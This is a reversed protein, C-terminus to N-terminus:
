TPTAKVRVYYTGASLGTIETGTCNKADTFSSNDAYEMDTSTGSIKGDTGGISSPAVATLGTPAAPGVAKAITATADSSVSDTQVSSTVVCTLTQGIDEQVIVYTNRTAGEINNEGRKWQYSLAGSNNGSAYVATLTKGYKTTGSITVTGTLSVAAWQATLGAVTNLVTEGAAYTTISSTDKWGAFAKDTPATLGEGSPAIFSDGACIIKINTTSGKLSGGNLNLTVAKLGDYGLTGPNLVELAPRFSANVSKPYGNCYHVSHDGRIAFFNSILRTDQGWSPIGKWNKIWGTANDASNSKKVIQDWENTLPLGKHDSGDSAFGAHGSGVSLSRLKYNTDFDKGFILGNTNLSNWSIGTSIAYDGVFLSRDSKNAYAYSETTAMESTLSYANVTGAYTFPVYHLSRDPLTTNVTGINNKESSLDFYYTDGPTLNFQETVAPAPEFKVYKYQNLNAMDYAVLSGEDYSTSAMAQTGGGIYLTEYYFARGMGKIIASGGSVNVFVTSAGIAYSKSSSIIGGCINVVAGTEAYITVLNPYAESSITGGNITATGGSSVFVTNAFQSHITGGNMILNGNYCEIARAGLGSASVAGGGASDEITLTAGSANILIAPKDTGSQSITRGNLNLIFSKTSAITVSDTLNIDKLLEITQGDTVADFAEELTAYGTEGIAAVDGAEIALLQIGRTAFAPEGVTATLTEPLKLDEIATGTMVTKATEELPAYNTIEGSAGLTTHAKATVPMLTLVMCLVLLMSLLRKKM